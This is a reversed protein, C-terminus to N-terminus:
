ATLAEVRRGVVDITIPPIGDPLCPDSVVHGGRVDLGLLTRIALLPAGAAFSQPRSAGDYEVPFGTLSRDFGAFLEPLRGAFAEAAELLDHVLRSAQERYGYRRLGEAVLATDHPWVSGTHYSLPNYGRDAKSLTRIGFGTALEPSRLRAATVEARDSTALGSWLAHGINSTLSDVQAKDRDLAVAYHGREEHWFAAEFAERLREAAAELEDAFDRDEWVERALRATRRLADYAYGQVECTAIPPEALRGDAFQIADRSDKWSQNELGGPSRQLYELLGDGDLDGEEEIWGVAARANAELARVLERDRTWREYEDLVILFLSTADHTGYYPTHPIDGLVALEGRRLEHPIKGPEAERFDDRATAQLRALTELTTRALEPHFPLLQYATILSDRGFLAMYWPLGGAPVSWATDPLPRFRLGALDVLSQRYTHRLSDWDTELLPATNLWEDLSLPMDPKPKGFEGCRRRSPREEGDVVPVVDVCTSWTERPSLALAFTARERTLTCPRSFRVITTRTYDGREYRLMVQQEGVEQVVDGRKEPHTRCEFIDGFDSAFELTLELDRPQETLNEVIVDEHVGGAIFRERRIAITAADIEEDVCAAGAVRASYYDVRRSSLLLPPEGEIRLVWRSLHRMDEHFFGEARKAEIDGSSDSMFYTTGDLITLSDAV